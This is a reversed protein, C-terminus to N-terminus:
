HTMIFRLVVQNYYSPNGAHPPHGAGPIIVTTDSQLCRALEDTIHQFVPPSRDGRVLLVPTTVRGLEACSIPPSYDRRNALMERRMEFAHALLDARTAAPLNDFRGRGGSVADYFTRIGTVSDGAAFARRAPDLANTYFLSGVSDSTEGHSLLPFIPADALVLSRVLEPHERALELATYAGYSSGVVHAPAIDLTLLLAALDEVHLKLSYPQADDVQPNPPHYRRSYVLVRHTQAFVNDQGSWERLDKLTGHVFVVPAGTDGMIRYTLRAGNVDIAHLTRDFVRMPSAAPPAAPAPTGKEPGPKGGCAVVLLCWMLIRM